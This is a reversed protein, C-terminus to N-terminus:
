AGHMIRKKGTVELLIPRRKEYERYERQGAKVPRKCPRGLIRACVKRWLMDRAIYIYVKVVGTKSIGRHV